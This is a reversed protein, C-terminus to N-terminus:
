KGKVDTSFVLLCRPPCSKVWTSSLGRGPPPATDCLSPSFNCLYFSSVASSNWVRWSFLAGDSTSKFGLFADDDEPLLRFVKHLAAWLYHATMVGAYVDAECAYMSRQTDGYIRPAEEKLMNMVKLGGNIECDSTSLLSLARRRIDLAPSGPGSRSYISWTATFVASRTTILALHHRPPSGQSGSYVAASKHKWVSLNSKSCTNTM